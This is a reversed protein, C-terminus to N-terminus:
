VAWYIRAPPPHLRKGGHAWHYGSPFKLPMKAPSAIPPNKTWSKGSMRQDKKGFGRPVRRVPASFEAGTKNKIKRKRRHLFGFFNKREKGRRSGIEFITGFGDCSEVALPSLRNCLGCFFLFEKDNRWLQCSKEEIILYM